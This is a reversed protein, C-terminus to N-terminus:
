RCVTGPAFMQRFVCPALSSGGMGMHVVRTFGAAKAERAFAMLEAAQAQMRVPADLWGMASAAARAVAEDQAWLTGDKKWLRETFRDAELKEIAPRLRTTQFSAAGVASEAM